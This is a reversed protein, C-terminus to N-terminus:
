SPEGGELLDRVRGEHPILAKLLGSAEGARRASLTAERLAVEFVREGSRAALAELAEVGAAERWAIMKLEVALEAFSSM